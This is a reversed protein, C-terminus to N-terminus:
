QSSQTVGSQAKSHQILALIFCLNCDTELLPVAKEDGKQEFPMM